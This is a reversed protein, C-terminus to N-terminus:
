SKFKKRKIWFILRAFLFILIISILGFILWWPFLFGLIEIGKGEIYSIFPALVKFKAENERVNGARDIAKIIVNYKGTKEFPVKYPSVQETFFARGTEKQSLDILSVEYHDLGSFNDTTEFYILTQGPRSEIKPTFENPLTTDIKVQVTSTKGWITDKKQRVHFYWIGDSLNSFSAFNQNGESISDPRGEPNQDLSFSFESIGEEREWSFAPSPDSYWVDSNPHTSSFVKPGEPPPVLIQYEGNVITSLINTGKESLIVKSGGTFEVRALGTSITRFTISSVLGASTKIGGPIGGRFSIIGKENSYNPPIIWESIFSTGATPSTVQLIEPPFKLEAWVVNIENGGTNLFISVSFTSGVLFSGSSPSLYLEAGEAKVFFPLFLILFTLILIKKSFKFKKIILWLIAMLIPIFVLAWYPFSKQTPTIESIRENGAKDIAKVLIKSKLSQDKLLYPNQVREWVEQQGGKIESVEYYDIGTEKDFTSFVIFYKGDFISPDKGIKIEFPEPPIKDEKLLKEWENEPVERKQALVEFTGGEIKLEALTGLGNNLLVQCNDNFKVKAEGEKKARFIIRGLIGDGSYGGPTGGIFHIQGNQNSFVPGEPWLTLISNGNSFDVIELFDQPFTLDVKVTNIKEESSLKVEVVFVDELYVTKSQPM